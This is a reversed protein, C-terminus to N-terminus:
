DDDDDFEVDIVEGRTGIHGMSYGPPLSARAPHREDIIPQVMVQGLIGELKVSIDDTRPQVAKGMVHEILWQAAQLKVSPAVVPKGKEDHDQNNLISQVVVLASTAQINMEKRILTKFQEMMREHVARHIVPTPRGRFGGNVDRVRGRALEEVDWDAIPKGCWAEFLEETLPAGRAIMRRARARIQKKSIVHGDKDYEKAESTSERSALSKSEPEVDTAQVSFDLVRPTASGNRRGAM